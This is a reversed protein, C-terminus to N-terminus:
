GYEQLRKSYIATGVVVSFVTCPLAGNLVHGSFCACIVAIILMYGYPEQFKPAFIIKFYFTVIVVLGIVGYQFFADLWDMEIAGTFVPFKWGFMIKGVSPSAILDEVVEPIRYTRASTLFGMINFLSVDTSTTQQYFNLYRGVMRMLNDHMNYLVLMFVCLIATTIPIIRKPEKKFMKVMFYVLTIGAFLICSKTSLIIIAIFNLLIPISSKVSMKVIMFEYLSYITMMTLSFGIDNACYFYGKFGADYYTAKGMDAIYEVILLCPIVYKWIDLIKKPVNLRDHGRLRAFLLIYIIPLVWKLSYTFASIFSADAALTKIVASIPFYMFIILWIWDDKSFRFAIFIFVLIVLRYFTGISIGTEGHGLVYWGNITDMVPTIVLLFFLISYSNIKFYKMRSNITRMKVLMYLMWEQVLIVEIFHYIAVM